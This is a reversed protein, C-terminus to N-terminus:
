PKLKVEESRRLRVRVRKEGLRGVGKEEGRRLVRGGGERGRRAFDSRGEGGEGGRGESAGEEGEYGSASARGLKLAPASTTAGAASGGDEEDRERGGEAEILV